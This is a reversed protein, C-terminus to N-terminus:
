KETYVWELNTDISSYTGPKVGRTVFQVMISLIYQMNDMLYTHVEIMKQENELGFKRGDYDNETGPVAKDWYGLIMALDDMLYSGGYPNITDYGIYIDDIRENRFQSMLKIHEETLTIKIKAMTIIIQQM